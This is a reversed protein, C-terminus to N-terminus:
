DLKRVIVGIGYKYNWLWIRGDSSINETEFELGTKTNIDSSETWLLDGKAKQGKESPTSELKLMYYESMSDNSVTFKNQDPNYGLQCNLGDYTFKVSGKITLSINDTNIFDPDIEEDHRCSTFPLITLICILLSLRKM